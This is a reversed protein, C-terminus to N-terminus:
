YTQSPVEQRIGCAGPAVAPSSCVRVLNIARIKHVTDPGRSVIRTHALFVSASSLGGRASAKKRKMFM